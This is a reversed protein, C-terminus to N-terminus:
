VSDPAGAAQQAIHTCQQRFELVWSDVDPVLDPQVVQQQQQQRLRALLAKRSANLQQAAAGREEACLGSMQQMCDAVVQRTAVDVAHALSGATASQAAAKAAAAEAPDALSPAPPGWAELVRQWVAAADVGREADWVISCHQEWPAGSGAGGPPELASLTRALVEAPVRQGAPRATNRQQAVTLSCQLHLLLCAAGAARALGYCEQRMSRYHMTDDALVLRLQEAGGLGAPSECPQRGLAQGLAAFAAARAQRWAAPSFAPQEASGAGSAAGAGGGGGDAAPSSLEDFCIHVVEVAPQHEQQQLQAALQVLARALTTKGAGPPGCLVLLCTPARDPERM